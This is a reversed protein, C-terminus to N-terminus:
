VNQTRKVLNGLSSRKWWGHVRPFRSVLASLPTLIRWLFMWSRHMLGVLVPIWRTGLRQLHLSVMWPFLKLKPMLQCRKELLLPPKSSNPSLQVEIDHYQALLQEKENRLHLLKEQARDLSEKANSVAQEQRGIRTRVATIQAKKEALAKERANGPDTRKPVLSAQVQELLAESVGLGRLAKLVAMGEGKLAASMDTKGKHVPQSQPQVTGRRFTPNGTRQAQPARGLHQTERAPTPSSFHPENLPRPALCRFCVNRSPWCGGMNCNSCTWSGPVLPARQRLSGGLLRATMTLSSDPGLGGEELTDNERLRRGSAGVLYFASRPVGTLSEVQGVVLSVEDKGNLGRVVVTKGALNKVFVQFKKVKSREEDKSDHSGTAQLFSSAEPPDGVDVRPTAQAVSAYHGGAAAAHQLVKEIAPQLWGFGGTFVLVGVLIWTFYSDMFGYALAGLGCSCAVAVVTAACWLWCVLQSMLSIDCRYCLRLGLVGWTLLQFLKMLVFRDGLVLTYVYVSAAAAIFGVGLTFLYAFASALAAAACGCVFVNHFGSTAAVSAVAQIGSKRVQFPRFNDFKGHAERLFKSSGNGKSFGCGLGAKPKYEFINECGPFWSGPFAVFAASLMFVPQFCIPYHWVRSPLVLVLAALLASFCSAAVFLSGKVLVSFSYLFDQYFRLVPFSPVSLTAVGEKEELLEEAGEVSNVLTPAPPSLWPAEFVFWGSSAALCDTLASVAGRVCWKLAVHSSLSM